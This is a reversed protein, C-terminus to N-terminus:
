QLSSARSIASIFVLSSILVAMGNGIWYVANYPPIDVGMNLEGNNAMNVSFRTDLNEKYWNYDSYYHVTHSGVPINDITVSKVPKKEVVLRDNIAVYTKASPKSPKLILKGANSSGAQYSVYYDKACSSLLLVCFLILISKKM